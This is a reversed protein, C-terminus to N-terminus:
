NEVRDSKSPLTNEWWPNLPYCIIITPNWLPISFSPYWMWPLCRARLNGLGTVPLYHCYIVIVPIELDSFQLSFLKFGKNLILKLALITSDAVYIIAGM